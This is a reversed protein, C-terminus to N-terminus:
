LLYKAHMGSLNANSTSLVRWCCGALAGLSAHYHASVSGLFAPSPNRVPFMQVLYRAVASNLGNVPDIGIALVASTSHEPLAVVASPVQADAQLAVALLLVAPHM